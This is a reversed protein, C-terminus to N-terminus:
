TIADINAGIKDSRSAVETTVQDLSNIINSVKDINKKNLLIKIQTSIEQVDKAISQAQETLSTLLSLHTPIQPYPESNHPTLMKKNTSEKPLQLDIYSLGTIGQIKLVAFTDTSIAIEKFVNIYIFVNRPDKADLKISKIKGVEVGNYRIISNATIGNIPENFVTLYTNYSRHNSASFWLWVITLIATSIVVFLGVILYQQNNKIM